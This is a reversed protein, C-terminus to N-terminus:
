PARARGSCARGRIRRTPAGTASSPWAATRRRAAPSLWYGQIEDCGHERLFQMQAETEVGEAVVNLGSRIRWRSSRAHHDGRRRLRPHPRRHIGQRDEAHQDAPAQPLVLSSYGTGFDDIALSVGLEACRRCCQRRDARRQGHGRKRDTGTRAREAPLGTDACCASSWPRAPRRAAAAAGVRQGGDGPRDLGHERWRRCRAPLGRAAGMRRDGPDPRKGRGAPHVATPPIEGYNRRQALAAAGRRRHHTGDALSLRPQYVLRLEDRDLVKRLAASITARRRIPRGDIENYVCPLHQPGGGQGPVDRHRRAEAPRDAGARPGSVPQHRHSPTIASTRASTSSAAAGRVRHHDRARHKSPRSGADRPEGARRHVRRRGPARGHAAAGVTTRCARRRPACSATAPPTASRITSTRSATWTSSCCRSAREGAPARARDRPSLRESLLTRNPLSTLTDYNALYRLEQEARKQDTIDSLVAVYTAASAAAFRLVASCRSGACSNRATRASSGCRAPGAATHARLQERMDGTSTRITSRATSCAPRQPRHSRRRQLRDHALLRSQGLRLRFDRDLVAVAENMSRLVELPSAASASPTAATPSTARPAPWACRAATPTASSWAAARACGSGSAAARRPHPARVPVAPQRRAPAPATQDRVAAPRGRHIHHETEVETEVEIDAASRADDNVRMRQLEDRALDYDWFQDGSAWLALKLREERDRIRAFYSASAGGASAGACSVRAPRAAAAGAARLRGAGASPAVAAADRVIPVRLEEPNWVGDHNTSQARFLYHGPPLLTYTIESRNGNDIWGHDLGDIRYRYRIRDNGLYDLAGIRLRLMGASERCRRARAQRRATPVDAATAGVDRRCCACRRSGAATPSAHASRVREPRARRRVGPPRRRLTARRAATSSSTRCATPWASSRAARRAAPVFRLLGRDTGMWLRAPRTAPWASCWRCRSARCRRSCRSPRIRLRRRSRRGPEPRRPQRGLDRRRRGQWLARVLNGALGDASPRSGSTGCAVAARISCTWGTAPASGSAVARSRGAGCAGDPAVTRAPMATSTASGSPALSATGSAPAPHFHMLGADIAHGAVPQRRRRRAISRLCPTPSARARAVASCRRSTAPRAPVPRRTTAVWVRGDGPM